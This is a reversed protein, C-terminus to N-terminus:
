SLEKKRVIKNAVLLAIMMLIFSIILDFSIEEKLFLLSTLYTFIPNLSLFFSTKISGLRKLSYLYVVQIYAFGIGSFIIFLLWLSFPVLPITSIVNGEIFLTLLLLEVFGLFLYGFTFPLYNDSNRTKQMIINAYSYSIIGLLLLGHGWSLHAVNFHISWLFGIVAISMALYQRKEIKNQLLVFSLLITIMPALANMIANGTGSIQQMGTFTFIFNITLAFLSVKCTTKFDIKELSIKKIKMIVYVSFLSVGVKLMALFYIPIFELMVKM